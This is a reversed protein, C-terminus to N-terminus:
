EVTIGWKRGLAREVRERENASLARQYVIVEAIFGDLGNAALGNAGIHIGTSDTNSTNGATQFTGDTAVLLGNAHLNATAASYAITGAFVTDNSNQSSAAGLAADFADADLRRGGLRVATGPSVGSGADLAFRSNLQSTQLDFLIQQSPAVSDFKSVFFATLGGVNTALNLAAANGSLLQAGGFDLVRRGNKTRAVGNPQAVATDQEMHRGNGSLDRWESVTDGNFTLSSNASADLWLGLNSISRPDFTARPVLLRPNMPM